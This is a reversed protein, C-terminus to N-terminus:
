QVGPIFIGSYVTCLALGSPTFFILAKMSEQFRLSSHSVNNTISRENHYQCAERQANETGWEPKDIEHRKRPVHACLSCRRFM